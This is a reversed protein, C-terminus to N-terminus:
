RREERKRGFLFGRKEPRPAVIRQVSEHRHSTEIKNQLEREWGNKSRSIFKRYHELGANIITNIQPQDLDHATYGQQATRIQVEALMLSVDLDTERALVSNKEFLALFLTSLSTKTQKTLPASWIADMIGPLYDTEILRAKYIFSNYVSDDSYTSTADRTLPEQYYDPYAPAEGNSRPDDDTM